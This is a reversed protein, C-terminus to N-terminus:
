GGRSRSPNSTRSGAVGSAGRTDGTRRRRESDTERRANRGGRAGSRCRNGCPMRGHQETGCADAQTTTVETEHADTAETVLWGVLSDIISEQIPTLAM